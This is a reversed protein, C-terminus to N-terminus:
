KKGNEIGELLNVLKKMKTKDKLGCKLFKGEKKTWVLGAKKLKQIDKLVVSHDKKVQDRVHCICDCCEHELLFRVIKYKTEDALLKLIEMYAHNHM